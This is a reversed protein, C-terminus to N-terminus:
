YAPARVSRGDIGARHPFVDQAPIGPIPPPCQEAREGTSEPRVQVACQVTAENNDVTILVIAGIRSVARCRVSIRSRRTAADNVVAVPGSAVARSGAAVGM